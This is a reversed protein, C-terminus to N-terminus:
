DNQKYTTRMHTHSWEKIKEEGWGKEKFLNDMEETAKQLFYASLMDKIEVWVTEPMERSFMKLLELQPATFKGGPIIEEALM